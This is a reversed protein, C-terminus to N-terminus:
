RNTIQLPGGTADSMRAIAGNRGSMMAELRDREKEFGTLMPGELSRGRPLKVRMPDVFRGNVLIEYHVHPGTSQGTSGVFGIIQGQRVKKGAEMGKAFASMHGYATEYGNNHKIRIYKGYGGELQAKEISGNGAAFIPTGYATAWDVGTHMKVYGLIPHRRGGFGSRMIGLGVPKRVLFKKASKGTEDYYDVVGDDPSQYRYFKKTEGGVTLAAFVVDNTAGADEEGSYLVEFSDGPQARRQFDVDYSYIRVLDDIVPRPIQNRLATEYISQYLRVATTDNEDDEDAEVVDTSTAMSQVDVAVYKGTDSLAVVAEVADGVVIVRVVRLRGADPAFMIRLKQGERLGGDRGRPGLVATLNRIDEASAGQDRLITSASEGKKVAVLKESWANPGDNQKPSKPLMTINEPTIRAEFGAYPDAEVGDPAYALRSSSPITPTLSATMPRAVSGTWEAADRVRAIVDELPVAAAVKVKPLVSALDRTVFSVEADPEASAAPTEDAAVANGRGNDMLLRAPNFKPVNSAMESLTLSLNSAVRVYPRVRVMERDGVRTNTSIRIVQRAANAEGSPPLKDSKRMIAAAREGTLTGRLAAEVREPLAAFNAEGDLAIFVAGGMLAAGCLGTLITGSFWQVSVRRRDILGATAGDM